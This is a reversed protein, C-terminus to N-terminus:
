REWIEYIGVDRWSAEGNQPQLDPEGNWNLYAPVYGAGFVDGMQYSPVSGVYVAYPQEAVCGPLDKCTIGSDQALRFVVNEPKGMFMITWRVLQTRGNELKQSPDIGVICEGKNRAFNVIKEQYGEAVVFGDAGEIVLKFEFGGIALFAEGDRQIPTVEDLYAYLEVTTTKDPGPERQAVPQLTDGAVFSLRVIGNVGCWEASAAVGNLVTLAVAIVATMALVRRM